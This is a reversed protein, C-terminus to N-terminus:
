CVEGISLEYIRSIFTSLRRAFYLRRFEWREELIGCLVFRKLRSDLFVESWAKCVRQFDCWLASYRPGEFTRWEM